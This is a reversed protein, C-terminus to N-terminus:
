CNSGGFRMEAQRMSMSDILRFLEEAPVAAATHLKVGGDKGVLVVSPGRLQFHQRLALPSLNVAAGEFRVAQDSIVLLRLQRDCLAVAQEALLAKQRGILQNDFSEANIVLLRSQWQHEALFSRTPVGASAASTAALSATLGAAFFLAPTKM